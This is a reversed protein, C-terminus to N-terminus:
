RTVTNAPGSYIVLDELRVEVEAAAKAAEEATKAAEEAVVFARYDAMLQEDAYDTLFDLRRELRRVQAELEIVTTDEYIEM